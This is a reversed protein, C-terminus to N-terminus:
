TIDRRATSLLAAATTAVIYGAALLAGIVPAVLYSSTQNLIAGAIAGASSGPSYKAVAPVIGGLTQEIFLLWVVLGVLTAVQNRVLAGVGVGIVAWVAAAVAGGVLLQTFQGPGPAVSISRAGLGISAVAIAVGEACLGVILGGVAASVFKASLMRGRRPTMLLTPRILGTRIEGTISLAGLLSAFLMGFTTGMGLITLQGESSRLDGAPLSTVHLAVVAAILVALSLLLYRTTRTTRQKFLESSVAANM